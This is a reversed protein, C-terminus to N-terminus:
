AMAASSFRICFIDLSGSSTPASKSRPADMRTLEVVAQGYLM